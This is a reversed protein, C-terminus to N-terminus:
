VLVALLVKGAVGDATVVNGILTVAPIIVPLMTSDAKDAVWVLKCETHGVSFLGDSVLKPVESTTSTVPTSMRYIVQCGEDKSIDPSVADTGIIPM